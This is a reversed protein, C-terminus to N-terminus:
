ASAVEKTLAWFERIREDSTSAEIDAIVVDCPGLESHIRRLDARLRELSNSALAMPTYMLARRTNPCAERAKALNSELGMDVYDLPKIKAYDRIYPDVKWACNHVGFRPFADAIRQDCPLLFERYQEPSVMNVLCNSVTAHDVVIGTAAQRAYVLHMGHIMTETIIAFLHTALEPNIVLDTLIEPGRIRYANNLVGQWNLYGEIRGFEKEIADLQEMLLSFFRSDELRLTSMARIQEESLHAHAAAPWNDQYYEIPVGFIGAVVLAGFAGDLNGAPMADFDGGIPIDPFQKRLERRMQTVTKARYVPDAHWRESFDIDLRQRYWRPTFGFEVRLSSESGDCPRRTAPAGPAIYSRLGHPQTEM